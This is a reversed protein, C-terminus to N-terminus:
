HAKYRCIARAIKELYNLFALMFVDKVINGSAMLQGAELGYGYWLPALHQEEGQLYWPPPVPHSPPWM